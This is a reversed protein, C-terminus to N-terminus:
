SLGLAVDVAEALGRAQLVTMGAPPAGETLSGAPVVARTFGIRAAEALRRPVGTVPRM